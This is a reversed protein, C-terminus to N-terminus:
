AEVWYEGPLTLNAQHSGTRIAKEGVFKVIWWM